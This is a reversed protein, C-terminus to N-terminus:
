QSPWMLPKSPYIGRHGEASPVDFYAWLHGKIIVGAKSDHDFWRVEVDSETFDPTRNLVNLPKIIKIDGTEYVHCLYLWATRDDAEFFAGLNGAKNVSEAFIDVM